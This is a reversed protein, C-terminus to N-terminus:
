AGFIMQLIQTIISVNEPTVVVGTLNTVQESVIQQGGADTFVQTGITVPDAGNVYSTLVDTATQQDISM